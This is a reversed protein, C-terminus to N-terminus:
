SKALSERSKRPRAPEGICVQNAPLDGFASSRAAVLAGEGIRTNPGVFADAAIWARDGIEIPAALVDMHLDQYDHDGACLNAYQSVMVDAGIRISGISDLVAEHQVSTRDGISLNWPRSIQVSPDIRVDSGISAGFRRLLWRRWGHSSAPSWRFLLSGVGWLRSRWPQGREFRRLRAIASFDRAERPTM